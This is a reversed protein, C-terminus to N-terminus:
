VNKLIISGVKVAVGLWKKWNFGRGAMLTELKALEAPNIDVEITSKVTPNDNSPAAAAEEPMAQSTSIVAFLAILVFAFAFKM